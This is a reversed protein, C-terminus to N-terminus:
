EEDLESQGFYEQLVRRIIAPPFGRRGLYGAVARWQQQMDAMPLSRLKREVARRAHELVVEEPMANAVVSTALEPEIGRRQLLALLQRPSVSKREVWRRVYAVAYARDDVYGDQTLQDLVAEILTLQNPFKRLLKRHLEDRSHARRALLRLATHRILWRLSERQLTALEGPSLEDGKRLGFDALVPLPCRLPTGDELFLEAEVRGHRRIRLIRMTGIADAEAAISAAAADEM